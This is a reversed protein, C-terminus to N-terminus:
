VPPLEADVGARIPNERSTLLRRCVVQRLRLCKHSSNQSNSVRLNAGAGARVATDAGVPDPRHCACIISSSARIASYSRSRRNACSSSTCASHTSLRSISSFPCNGSRYVNGPSGGNSSSWRTYPKKVPRVPFPLITPLTVLDGFRVNSNTTRCSAPLRSIRPGRGHWASTCPTHGDPFLHAPRDGSSGCGQATSLGHHCREAYCALAIGVTSSACLRALAPRRVDILPQRPTHRVVGGLWTHIAPLRPYTEM